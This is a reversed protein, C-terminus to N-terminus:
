RKQNLFVSLQEVSGTRVSNEALERCIHSGDRWVCESDAFHPVTGSRHERIIRVLEIGVKREVYGVCDDFCDTGAGCPFKERRYDPKLARKRCIPPRWEQAIM